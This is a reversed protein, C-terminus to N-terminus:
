GSTEVLRPYGDLCNLSVVGTELLEFDVLDGPNLNAKRALFATIRVGLANGWKALQVSM